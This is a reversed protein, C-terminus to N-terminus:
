RATGLRGLTGSVPRAADGGALADDSRISNGTLYPHECFCVKSGQTSPERSALASHRKADRDHATMHGAQKRPRSQQGQHLERGPEWDTKRAQLHQVRFPNQWARPEIPKGNPWFQSFSTRIRM